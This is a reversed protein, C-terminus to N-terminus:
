GRSVTGSILGFPENTPVFIENPNDLGFPQLNILLRHQNPMTLEIDSIDPCIKLAAEGMAYLTQQVSLSEHTAFVELLARRISEYSSNFNAAPSSYNWTATLSTAFIRDTTEKLTTYKDHVYGVFGSKTTKLVLLRDIGGKVLLTKRDNRVFCTRRESSGGVFSHEHPKGNVEIRDWPVESIKAVACAIQPYTNVFHTTLHKAFDEISELPHNKALVYVTNKMSDTAVIRSNDGHTYCSAFDGALEVDVGLEKLQHHEGHRSVKTLRVQSKGYSNSKLVAM